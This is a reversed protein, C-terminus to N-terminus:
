QLFAICAPSAHPDATNGIVDVLRSFEVPEQKSLRFSHSGDSNESSDERKMTLHFLCQHTNCPLVLIDLSALKPFLHYCREKLVSSLIQKNANM